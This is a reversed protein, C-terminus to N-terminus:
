DLYWESIESFLLLIGFIQGIGSIIIPTWETSKRMTILYVITMTFWVLLSYLWIDATSDIYPAYIKYVDLKGPDPNNYSPAHGLVQVAKFYFTMLSVIFTWPFIALFYFLTKWIKM